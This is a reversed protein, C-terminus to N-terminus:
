VAKREQQDNQNRDAQPSKSKMQRVGRDGLDNQRMERESDDMGAKEAGTDQDHTTKAGSSTTGRGGKLSESSPSPSM